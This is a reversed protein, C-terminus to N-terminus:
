FPYVEDLRRRLKSRTKEGEQLLIQIVPRTRWEMLVLDIDLSFQRLELRCVLFAGILNRLM